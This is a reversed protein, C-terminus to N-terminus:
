GGGMAGLDTAESLGAIPDNSQIFGGSGDHYTHYYSDDLLVPAGDAGEYYSNGTIANTWGNIVNSSYGSGGGSGSSYNQSHSSSYSQASQQCYATIQALEKAWDDWQKKTVALQAETLAGHWQENVILNDTFTAVTALNEDYVSQEAAYYYFVPVEWYSSTDEIAALYQTAPAYTTNIQKDIVCCARVKYPAGGIDFLMDVYACSMQVKVSGTLGTTTSAQQNFEDIAQQLYQQEAAEMAQLGALDDGEPYQVGLVKAGAVGFYGCMFEYAYDEATTFKKLPALAVDDFDGESTANHYISQPRPEEFSVKSVYGVRQNNEPAFAFFDIVAMGARSQGNWYVAGGTQWGSPVVSRAAECGLSEDYIAVREFQVAAGSALMEELRGATGETQVGQGQGSGQGYQVPPDTQGGTGDPYSGYGGAGRGAGNAVAALVIALVAIVIAVLLLLKTNRSMPPKQAVAGGYYL